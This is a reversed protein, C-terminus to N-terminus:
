REPRRTEYCRRNYQWWEKKRTVPFYLLARVKADEIGSHKLNIRITELRLKYNQWVHSLPLSHSFSKRSSSLTNSLKQSTMAVTCMTCLSPHTSFPFPYFLTWTSQWTLNTVWLKGFRFVCCRWHLTQFLQETQVQCVLNDLQWLSISVRSQHPLPLREPDQVATILPQLCQYWPALVLWVFGVSALPSVSVVLLRGWVVGVNEPSHADWGSM